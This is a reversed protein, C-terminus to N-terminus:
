VSISIPWQRLKGDPLIGHFMRKAAVPSSVFFVYELLKLKGDIKYLASFGCHVHLNDEVDYKRAICLGNVIVESAIARVQSPSFETMQIRKDREGDIWLCGYYTM